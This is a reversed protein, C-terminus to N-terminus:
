YWRTQRMHTTQECEMDAVATGSTTLIVVPKRTSLVRGLAFFSASREDPHSHYVINNINLISYILEANRAGTSIVFESAGLSLCQSIADLSNTYQINKNVSM